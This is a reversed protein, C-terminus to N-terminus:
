YEFCFSFKSGKGKESDLKIEGGMLAVEYKVIALGLGVGQHSRTLSEDGQTFADFLRGQDAKNIGIGTDKVTFCILQQELSEEILELCLTITGQETFKAANTLLNALVQQLCIQDGILFENINEDRDIIFDIGKNTCLPTIM